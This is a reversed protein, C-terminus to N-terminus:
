AYLWVRETFETLPLYQARYEPEADPDEEDYSGADAMLNFREAIEVADGADMPGYASAANLETGSEYIVVIGQPDTM